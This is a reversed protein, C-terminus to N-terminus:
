RITNNGSSVTSVSPNQNWTVRARMQTTAPGTVRWTYHDDGAAVASAVVEWTAGANRSVESTKVTVVGIPQRRANKVRQYAAAHRIEDGVGIWAGPRRFVRLGNPEKGWLRLEVKLGLM